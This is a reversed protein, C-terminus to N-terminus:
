WPLMSATIVDDVFTGHLLLHWTITGSAADDGHYAAADRVRQFLPRSQRMEASHKQRLRCIIASNVPRSHSDMM